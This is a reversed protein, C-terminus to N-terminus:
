VLLQELIMYFPVIKAYTHGEISPLNSNAEKYYEIYQLYNGSKITGPFHCPLFAQASETAIKERGFIKLGQNLSDM